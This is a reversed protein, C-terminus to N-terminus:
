CRRAPPVVALAVSAKTNKRSGAAAMKQVTGAEDIYLSVFARVSKPIPRGLLEYATKIIQGRLLQECRHPTSREFENVFVLNNRLLRAHDLAQGQYMRIIRSVSNWSQALFKNGSQECIFQHFRWHLELFGNSDRAAHTVRMDALLANLRTLVTDDGRSVVLRAALGEIVARFVSMQEIDDASPQIVYAGHNRRTEILGEAALTRFAERLIARSVALERSLQVEALHHGPQFHGSYIARALQTAAAETLSPARELKLGPRAFNQMTM